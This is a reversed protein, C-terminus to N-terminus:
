RLVVERQGHASLIKLKCLSNLARARASQSITASTTKNQELFSSARSTQNIDPAILRTPLGRIRKVGNIGM